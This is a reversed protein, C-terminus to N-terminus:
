RSRCIHMSDDNQEREMEVEKGRRSWYKYKGREERINGNKRLM